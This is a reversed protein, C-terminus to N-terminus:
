VDMRTCVTYGLCPGRDASANAAWFTRAEAQQPTEAPQPTEVPSSAKGEQSSASSSPRNRACSSCYGGTAPNGIVLVVYVFQWTIDICGFFGCGGLCTGGPTSAM